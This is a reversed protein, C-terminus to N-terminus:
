VKVCEDKRNKKACVCLILHFYDICVKYSKACHRPSEHMYMYTCTIDQTERNISM